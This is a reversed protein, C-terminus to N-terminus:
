PNKIVLPLYLLYQFDGWYRSVFIDSEPPSSASNQHARGTVVIKKDKQLALASGSDSQIGITTTVLGNTGFTLDPVGNPTYCLVALDGRVTWLSTFVEGVVIIQGDPQLAIDEAALTLSNATSFDTISTTVIGQVGFTADLDGNDVYRLLAIGNRGELLQANGVVTFQNGPQMVMRSTMISREVTTTVVGGIGFEADPLGSATYRALVVARFSSMELYGMVVIKGDPQVVVDRGYASIGVSTTVVGNVGFSSDLLGEPTYRTLLMLSNISPPDPFTYGGIVIKQDEQLAVSTAGSWRGIANTVIGTSGMTIDLSGTPLYRALFLGGESGEYYGAVLIKKDPQILIESASALDGISTTVVGGIGFSTDKNGNKTYRVLVVNKGDSGAVVIEESPQLAISLAHDSAAVSTTVVGGVGFSADLEGPLRTEVVGAYTKNALLLFVLVLILGSLGALLGRFIKM